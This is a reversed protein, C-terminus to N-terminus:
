TKREGKRNEQIEEKKGRRQRRRKRKRDKLPLLFHIHIVLVQEVVHGEKPNKSRNYAM